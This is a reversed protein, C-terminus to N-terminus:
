SADKLDKLIRELRKVQDLIEGIDLGRKTELKAHQLSVNELTDLAADYADAVARQKKVSEAHVTIAITVAYADSNAAPPTKALESGPRIDNFLPKLADQPAILGAAALSTYLRDQIAIIEAQLSKSAALSREARLARIIRDTAVHLAKSAALLQRAQREEALLSLGETFGQELTQLASAALPLAPLAVGAAALSKELEDVGALLTGINKKTADAADYDALDVFSQYAAGQTELVVRRAVLVKDIKELSEVLHMVEEIEKQKDPSEASRRISDLASFANRQANALCTSRLQGPALAVCVLAERATIWKPVSALSKRTADTQDELALVAAKGATGLARAAPRDLGTCGAVLCLAIIAVFRAHIM